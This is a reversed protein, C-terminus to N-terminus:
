KMLLNRRYNEVEWSEIFKIQRDGMFHPGGFNLSYFSIKMADEFVDLVLGASQDNAEVGIMGANEILIVRPLYGFRSLYSTLKKEIKVPDSKDGENLWLPNTKCYVIQDPIFPKGILARNERHAVFYQILKNKRTKFIYDADPQGKRYVNKIVDLSKFVFSGTGTNIEKKVYRKLKEFIKKYINKIEDVTDAAVFVGHNQLFIINPHSHYKKKYRVLEREIKKFLIYGPDVYPVFLAKPGFISMTKESANRSCMLANVLFPHTHVVFAHEILDHLSAEVSPRRQKGKTTNSAMLDDKVQREREFPDNSYEKETISKLANRDLVAFGAATIGALSYGSAKVWLRDKSKFSTNGGGGLAYGKKLGYYRSIKVLDENMRFYKHFIM